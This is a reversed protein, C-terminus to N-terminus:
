GKVAGASLSAGIRRYLILGLVMPPAAAIMMVAAAVGWQVGGGSSAFFFSAGVTVPVANTTTLMLGFLFENWATIFGFVFATLVTPLCLPAIIRLLIGVTKTNDMRAAEDLEDPVDTIANVLLVLTLPLNVIALILGLGLRTDLLGAWQYMMYLPIAFIILPLVRLNLILPLLWRRGYGRRAIAYAAPLTLLLPLLAGISAAVVSNLLYGPMDLRDSTAFVQRYNELSPSQVIVGPNLSIEAPSKLSTALTAIVPLNMAVAAVVFVVWRLM